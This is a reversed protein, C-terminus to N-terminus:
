EEYRMYREASPRTGPEAPNSDAFEGEDEPAEAMSGPDLDDVDHDGRELLGLVVARAIGFLLYAIGFPFLVYEPYTTGGVLLAVTFITGAIARGSRFGISPFKPYKVNSVMLVSLLLMLIVLGQHQLDLYALSAQYWGTQSFPYYVALTLGAAPSPLGVFWHSHPQDHALVNYRALRATVAVVYIFCIAWAFRGGGAFELFYMILAPAVGFSIADVLSDLEAGFRSGTNSLRALRGDLMDLLGAFVVFWGAWTLNGQAASVIAWFGFFLNGLTFTSPMVLVVRRMDPRGLRGRATRM